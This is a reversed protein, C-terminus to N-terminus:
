VKLNISSVEVVKISKFNLGDDFGGDEMFTDITPNNGILDSSLVSVIKGDCVLAWFKVSQKKTSM